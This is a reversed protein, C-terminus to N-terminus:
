LKAADRSLKLLFLTIYLCILPFFFLLTSILSATITGYLFNIKVLNRLGKFEIEGPIKKILYLMFITLLTSILVGFFGLQLYSDFIYNGVAQAYAFGSQNPFYTTYIINYIPEYVGILRSLQHGKFYGKYDNDWACVFVRSVISPLVITRYIFDNAFKSFQYYQSVESLKPDEHQVCNNQFKTSVSDLKPQVTPLVTKLHENKYLQEFDRSSSKYTFFFMGLCCIWAAIGILIKKKLILNQNQSLSLVIILFLFIPGIKIQLLFTLIIFLIWLIYKYNKNGFPVILSFPILTHFMRSELPYLPHLATTILRLSYSFANDFLNLNKMLALAFSSFCVLTLLIMLGDYYKFFQHLHSHNLKIKQRSIPMLMFFSMALIPLIGIWLIIWDNPLAPSQFYYALMTITLLYAVLILIHYNLFIKKLDWRM